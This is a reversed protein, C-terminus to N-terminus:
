ETQLRQPHDLSRRIRNIRRSRNRRDVDPDTERTNYRKTEWGYTDQETNLKSSCTPVPSAITALGGKQCVCFIQPRFREANVTQTFTATAPFCSLGSKQGYIFTVSPRATESDS